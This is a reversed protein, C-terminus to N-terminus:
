RRVERTTRFSVNDWYRVESISGGDSLDGGDASARTAGVVFSRWLPAERRAPNTFRVATDQHALYGDIWARVVGNRADVTSNLKLEAEIRHWRGAKIPALPCRTGGYADDRSWQMGLGCGGNHMVVVFVDSSEDLKEGLAARFLLLMRTVRANDLNFTTDPIYLDGSFFVTSGLGLTSTQTFSLAAAPEAPTRTAVYRMEAVKGRSRGTPDDVVRVSGVPDAKFPGLTGDDFTAAALEQQGSRAAGQVFDHAPEPARPVRGTMAAAAVLGGCSLLVIVVRRALMM